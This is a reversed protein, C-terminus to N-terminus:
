SGSLRRPSLVWLLRGFQSMFDVTGLDDFKLMELQVPLRPSFDFPTETIPIQVDNSSDRARASSAMARLPAFPSLNFATSLFIFFVPYPVFEAFCSCFIGYLSEGNGDRTELKDNVLVHSEDFYLMIKVDEPGISGNNKVRGDVAHILPIL